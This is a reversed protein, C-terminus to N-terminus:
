SFCFGRKNASVLRRREQVEHEKLGPPWRSEDYFGDAFSLTGYDGLHTHLGVPDGDQLCAIAMLLKSRKFNLSGTASSSPPFADLALEYLTAPSPSTDDSQGAGASRSLQAGHQIRSAVIACVAMAVTYFARDTTYLRTEIAKM